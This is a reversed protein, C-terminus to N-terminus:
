YTDQIFVAQCCKLVVLASVVRVEIFHCCNDEKNATNSGEMAVYQKRHTTVRMSQTTTQVTTKIFLHLKLILQM